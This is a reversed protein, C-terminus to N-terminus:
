IHTGNLIKNLFQIGAYDRKPFLLPFLLSNLHHSLKNIYSYSNELKSNSKPHTCINISSPIKGETSVILPACEATRPLNYRNQYFNVDRMLYLKYDKQPNSKSIDYM